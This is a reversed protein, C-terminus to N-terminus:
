ASASVNSTAPRVSVAPKQVNQNFAVAQLCGFGAFLYGLNYPIDVTLASFVNSGYVGATSLLLYGLDSYAWLVLAGGIFWWPNWAGRRDTALLALLGGTVLTADLVPYAVGLIQALGYATGYHTLTPLVVAKGILVTLAAGVGFAVAFKARSLHARRLRLQLEIAAGVFLYGM